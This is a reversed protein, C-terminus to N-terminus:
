KKEKVLLNRVRDLDDSLKIIEKGLAHMKAFQAKNSRTIYDNLKVIERANLSEDDNSLFLDLQASM